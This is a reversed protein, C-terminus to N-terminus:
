KGKKAQLKPKTRCLYNMRNRDVAHGTETEIRRLVHSETMYEDLWLACAWQEQEPTLKVAARRGSPKRPAELKPRDDPGEIKAGASEIARKVKAQGAGGGLDSMELVVVTMGSRLCAKMADREKLGTADNDIFIRDKLIDLGAFDKDSRTITITRTGRKETRSWGYAIRM